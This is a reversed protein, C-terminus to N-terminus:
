DDGVGYLNFAYKEIGGWVENRIYTLDDVLVITMSLPSLRNTISELATILSPIKTESDETVIFIGYEEKLIRKRHIIDRLIKAQDFEKSEFAKQMMFRLVPNIKQETDYKLSNHAVVSIYVDETEDNARKEKNPSLNKKSKVEYFSIDHPNKINDFAILDTGFVSRGSHLKYKLKNLSDKSYFNKLILKTTVEALDGAQVRIKTQLNDSNEDNPFLAKLYDRISEKTGGELSFDLSEKDEYTYLINKQLYEIIPSDAKKKNTIKVVTFSQSNPDIEPTNLWEEIM